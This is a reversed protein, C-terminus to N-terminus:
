APSPSRAWRAGPGHKGVNHIQRERQLEQVLNRVKNRKQQANLANPLKTLLMQSIEAPSASGFKDILRMVLDKYYADDFGATLVYDAKQGVAGAIVASVYINPRRGEILRKEKLSAFEEDSLKVRKQVKDLAMVDSLPLDTKALLTRTYNEDLVKGYLTM